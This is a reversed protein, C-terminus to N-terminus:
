KPIILKQGIQLTTNTLNNIRILDNVTVGYQQAIKYLSDGSKVTYTTGSNSLTTINVRPIVLQQGISLQSSELNNEKQLDEVTVGFQSAITYLSDGSQVTYITDIVGEPSTYTYGMFRTVARVVAEAYNLINEEIRKADAENDIFGYNVIVTELPNTERIIPHYDKSLDEPLRRQYYKRLIQDENGIEEYIVRALQDTDRLAYIVEAGEGEGENFQNSILIVNDDKGFANLATTAREEDSLTVDQDRTTAVPVGLARFRDVMYNSVKLTLDKETLGNGTVGSDSGGRAADIVVGKIPKDNQM